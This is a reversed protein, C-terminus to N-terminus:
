LTAKDEPDPGVQLKTASLKQMRKNLAAGVSQDEDSYNALLGQGEQKNFTQPTEIKTMNM